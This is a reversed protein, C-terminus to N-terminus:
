IKLIVVVHTDLNNGEKKTSQIANDQMTETCTKILSTFSLSSEKQHSDVPSVKLFVLLSQEQTHQLIDPELYKLVAVCFYM